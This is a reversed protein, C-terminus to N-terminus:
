CSMGQNGSTHRTPPSNGGTGEAFELGNLRHLGAALTLAEQRFLPLMLADPYAVLITERMVAVCIIESFSRLSMVELTCSKSSSMMAGSSICNLPVTMCGRLPASNRQVSNLHRSFDFSPHSVRQIIKGGRSYGAIVGLVAARRRMYRNYTTRWLMQRNPMLWWWCATCCSLSDKAKSHLLFSGLALM